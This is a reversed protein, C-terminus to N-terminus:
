IIIQASIYICKLPFCSTHPIGLYPTIDDSGNSVAAKIFRLDYQLFQLIANGVGVNSHVMDLFLNLVVRSITHRLHFSTGM